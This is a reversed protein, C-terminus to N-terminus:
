SPHLIVDNFFNSTVAYARHLHKLHLRRISFIIDHPSAVHRHLKCLTQISALYSKSHRARLYLLGTISESISIAQSEGAESLRILLAKPPYVIVEGGEPQTQALFCYPTKLVLYLTQQSAKFSHM